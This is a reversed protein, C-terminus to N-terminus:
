FRVSEKMQVCFFRQLTEVYDCSVGGFLSFPPPSVRQFPTDFTRLQDALPARFPAGTTTFDLFTRTNARALPQRESSVLLWGPGLPVGPPAAPRRYDSLSVAMTGSADTAGCSVTSPLLVGDPGLSFTCVWERMARNAARVTTGDHITGLGDDVWDQYALRCPVVDTHTPCSLDFAGYSRRSTTLTQPALFSTANSDSSVAFTLNGRASSWAAVFRWLARSWSVRPPERTSASPLDITRTALTTRDLVGARVVGGDDAFVAVTVNPGVAVDPEIRTVAGAIAVTASPSWFGSPRMFLPRLTVTDTGDTTIVTCETPGPDPRCSVRPRTVTQFGTDLADEDWAIAGAVGIDGRMVGVSRNVTGYNARAGRVDDPAAHVWRRGLDGALEQCMLPSQSAASCMGPTVLDGLGLMHGMEHGMIRRLGAIAARGTADPADNLMVWPASDYLVIDCENTSPGECFTYALVLPDEFWARGRHIVSSTGDNVYVCNVFPTCSPLTPAYATSPSVALAVSARANLSWYQAESDVIALLDALSAPQGAWSSTTDNDVFITHVASPALRNPVSEWAAATCTCSLVLVVVLARTM